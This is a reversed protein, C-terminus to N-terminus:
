HRLVLIFREKSLICNYRFILSYQYSVNKLTVKLFVHSVRMAFRFRIEAVVLFRFLPWARMSKSVCTKTYKICM